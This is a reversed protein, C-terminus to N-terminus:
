GSIAPDVNPVARPVGAVPWAHEAILQAEALERPARRAQV